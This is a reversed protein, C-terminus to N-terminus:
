ERMGVSGHVDELSSTCMREKVVGKSERKRVCSLNVGSRM